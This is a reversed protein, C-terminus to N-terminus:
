GFSFLVGQSRSTVDRLMGEDHSAIKAFSVAPTKAFLLEAFQKVAFIYGRITGQSYNRRQLEELM